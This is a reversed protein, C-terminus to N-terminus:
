RKMVSQLLLKQAEERAVERAERVAEHTASDAIAQFGPGVIEAFNNLNDNLKDFSQDM